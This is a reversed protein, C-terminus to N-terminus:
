PKAHHNYKSLDPFADGSDFQWKYTQWTTTVRRVYGRTERYPIREVYEDTPVNGWEGLWQRVRGPGANYGALSLYPSGVEKHVAELYRSGIKLNTTPVDLDSMKIDMRLWGATQRATAPMLQSLGRAGVPSRIEANFNSEERVLAHFLRPDYRYGKAVGQVEDWFHDPYGIRLVQPQGDGLTGPPNKKLWQKMNDHAFLWDGSGIRLETRWAMEDPELDGVSARHWETRAENPLGLRSLAIANQVHPDQMFALRVKWPRSLDGRDHDKARKNLEAAVQPAEEVLRSYALVSYYSHPLDECLARWEGVAQDLADPLESRQ